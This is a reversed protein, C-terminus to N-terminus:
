KCVKQNYSEDQFHRLVDIGQLDCYTRLREEQDRLSYGQDAQEETSVRTYIIETKAM